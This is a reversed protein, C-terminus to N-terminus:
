NTRFFFPDVSIPVETVGNLALLKQTSFDHNRQYTVGHPFNALNPTNNASFIGYFDGGAAVLHAYDGLYPSFTLTPTNAPTDALVLDSWTTGNTTRRFHTSWRRNISTGLLQQYLLGIEGTNNIALAANTGRTITLLDSSSWTEGSDLSRRVHVTFVGQTPEDNWALYVTSSMGPRPDVALSLNGGLRQQGNVPIGTSNFAFSVDRVARIGSLGDDPDVLDEFPSSGKGWNDDRVVVVDSSTVRFTNAGFNGTGARWGYYVAYVVGDPHISPRVQPGDQGVNGTGRKELRIKKLSPSGAGANLFTDLTATQPSADFDNNGVYVRERGNDSGGSVTAAQTFPQDPELRNDLISMPTAAAFDNARLSAMRTAFSPADARLISAYLKSGTGSFAVTIDGTMSGGAPVISNLTWAHGGDLSIYIPALNGGMPNRTFATGVIHDHNTPNVTIMPESDQGTESSLARPIMNIVTVGSAAATAQRSAKKKSRAKARSKKAM